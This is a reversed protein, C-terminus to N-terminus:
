NGSSPPWDTHTGDLAHPCQVIGEPRHDLPTPRGLSFAFREQVEDALLARLKDRLVLVINNEFVAGHPQAAALVDMSALENTEIKAGIAPTGCSERLLDIGVRDGLFKQGVTREGGKAAGRRRCRSLGSARGNGPAYM